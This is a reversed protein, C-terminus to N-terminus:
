YTETKTDLIVRCYRWSEPGTLLENVRAVAVDCQQELGHAFLMGRLGYVTGCGDFGMKFQTEDVNIDTQQDTLDQANTLAAFTGIQTTPPDIQGDTGCFFVSLIVEENVM